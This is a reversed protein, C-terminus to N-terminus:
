DKKDPEDPSLDKLKKMQATLEDLEARNEEIHKALRKAEEAIPGDPFRKQLEGYLEVAKDYEGLGEYARAAGFLCEQVLIPTAKFQKALSEYLDAAERLKESADRREIFLRPLDDRLIKRAEQLQVVNAQVTGKNEAIFQERDDRTASDLAFWRASNRRAALDSFFWWGIWVVGV